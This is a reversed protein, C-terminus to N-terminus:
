AMEHEIAAVRRRVVFLRMMTLSRFARRKRSLEDVQLLKEDELRQIGKFRKMADFVQTKRIQRVQERAYDLYAQKELQRQKFNKIQDFVVLQIQKKVLLDYYAAFLTEANRRLQSQLFLSKLVLKQRLRSCIDLLINEKLSHGERIAQKVSHRRFALRDRLQIIEHVLPLFSDFIACKLNQRIIALRKQPLALGQKLRASGIADQEDQRLPEHLANKAKAIAHSLGPAEELFEQETLKFAEWVKTLLLHSTGSSEQRNTIELERPCTPPSAASGIGTTTQVFSQEVANEM